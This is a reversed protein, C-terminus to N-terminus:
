GHPPDGATLVCADRIVAGRRSAVERVSQEKVAHMQQGLCQVGTKLDM